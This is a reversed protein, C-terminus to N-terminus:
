ATPASDDSLAYLFGVGRVTKIPAERRLCASLKRRVKSIHVDLSRDYSMLERELVERALEERRVVQGAARLLAALLDFEIATLELTQHHCRASRAGVNLEVAGVYLVESRAAPREHTRRLVARLRAALERMSFPKPLYDDAGLELGIVRDVEEGKDTLMVVPTSAADGGAERLRRLVELGNLGPLMVDLLVLDYGGNQARELGRAGDTESEIELGQPALEQAVLACLDADDDVVLVRLVRAATHPAAKDNPSAM